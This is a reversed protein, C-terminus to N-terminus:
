KGFAAAPTLLIRQEPRFRARHQVLMKGSQRATLIAMVPAAVRLQLETKEDLDPLLAQPLAYRLPSKLQLEIHTGPEPLGQALDRAIIAGVRKGERWCWGATEIPRLLNGAAFVSKDSCRGFPDVRPGGTGPDVAIGPAACCHRRRRSAAPSCSAM